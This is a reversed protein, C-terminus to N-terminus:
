EPIPPLNSYTSFTSKMKSELFRLHYCNQHIRELLYMPLFEIPKNFANQNQKLHFHIQILKHKVNEHLNFRFRRCKEILNRPIEDRSGLDDGFHRLIWM